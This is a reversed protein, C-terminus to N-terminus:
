AAVGVANKSQRKVAYMAQDAARLLDDADQAHDPYAAVGISATVASIDVDGGDLYEAAEVASRIAEALTVGAGIRGPVIVAFEDGGFRAATDGPGLLNGIVRGLYAITRGGILHGYRDVVQKFNDFDLVLLALPHGEAIRQPLAQNLQRSNGLGTLDDTVAAVQAQRYLAANEIAIAVHDALIQVLRLQRQDFTGGDLRNMVQIVGLLADRSVIPVCLMSHPRFNTMAEITKDYRPDSSADDLLLPQRNRAVWGVIGQEAPM